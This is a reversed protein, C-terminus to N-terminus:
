AIGTVIFYGTGPTASARARLALRSGRRVTVALPVDLHPSNAFEGILIPASAHVIQEAGAAGVGVDVLATTAGSGTNAEMGGVILRRIDQPTSAWIERWSGDVNAAPWSYTTGYNPDGFTQTSYQGALPALVDSAGLPTCGVRYARANDVPRLSIALRQGRAVRLPLTVSEPRGGATRVPIYSTVAVEAGAAGVALRFRFISSTDATLALALTVAQADIPLSASLEIWASDVNPSLSSTVVVSTASGTRTAGLAGERSGRVHGLPWNSV